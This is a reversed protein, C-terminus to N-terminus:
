KIDKVNTCCYALVLCSRHGGLKSSSELKESEHKFMVRVWVTQRSDVM